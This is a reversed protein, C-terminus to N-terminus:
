GPQPGPGRDVHGAYTRRRQHITFWLHARHERLDFPDTLRTVALGVGAILRRLRAARRGEGGACRAADPIARARRHPPERQVHRLRRRALRLRQDGGRVAGLEGRTLRRSSAASFYGGLPETENAEDGRLWQRGTYRLDLGLDVGAPAAGARRGEGPAGAGSPARRGREVANPGALPSAPSPTARRPRQLHRGPDRYTAHTYAYNAYLSVAESPVLQLGLESARRAPHRRHERLLGRVGRDGVPHLLHRRARRHPLRSATIIAPGRVLQMGTELTTSVVPDLPPDDGLAFPLPCAATEDACALELVAPARFSQGLSAYASAGPGLDVSVGGRPSLRRFTNTTDASPDLQNEFPVHIYDYRFGGSLTVRGLRYDGLAYGAVDWSPSRVDTTLTRDAADAPSETFLQIHM